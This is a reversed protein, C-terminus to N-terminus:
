RADVLYSDAWWYRYILRTEVTEFGAVRLGEAWADIPGEYNTRAASQDFYGFLVPMLFGQAVLSGDEAYESLGNHYRTLIHHVRAPEFLANFEPVDFEAILVRKGHTHLWDFVRPRDAPPISQLSWTAQIVDWTGADQDMFAQVTTQHARYDVNWDDLQRTTQALMAESPEVLDIRTINESLAPLLALGDGVGVDLLTLTEYQSYVEHLLNSAQTYLAVNGGGRIFSAFAAGDVYVASKGEEQVRQMYDAGEQFLASAPELRSAERAANAAEAFDGANYALLALYFHDFADEKEAARVGDYGANRYLDWLQELAM